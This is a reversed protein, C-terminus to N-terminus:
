LLLDRLPALAKQGGTWFIIGSALSELPAKLVDGRLATYHNRRERRDVGPSVDDLKIFTPQLSGTKEPQM